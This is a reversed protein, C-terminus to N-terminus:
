PLRMDPDTPYIRDALALLSDGVKLNLIRAVRVNIYTSVMKPHQIRPPSEGEIVHTAIEAAQRGMEEYNASISLVAGSKSLAESYGLLPLREHFGFLLLYKITLDDVFSPDPLVWLADIESRVKKLGPGLEEPSRVIFPVLRIPTNKFYEVFANVLSGTRDPNYPIGITRKPLVQSIRQYAERAALNMTVGWSRPIQLAETENFALCFVVPADIPNAKITSIALSGVAIVVKPSSLSVKDMIHAVQNPDGNLVFTITKTTGFSSIAGDVARNYPEIEASKLIVVPHEAAQLSTCFALGIILASVVAIWPKSTKM